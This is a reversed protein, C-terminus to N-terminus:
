QRYCVEVDTTDLCSVRSLLQQIGADFRKTYRRPRRDLDQGSEPCISNHRSVHRGQPNQVLSHPCLATKITHGHVEQGLRLALLETCASLVTALIVVNPLVWRQQMQRFLQLAREIDRSSAFEVIIVDLERCQACAEV